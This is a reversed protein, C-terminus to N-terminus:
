EQIENLDRSVCNEPLERFLVLWLSVREAWDRTGQNERGHM